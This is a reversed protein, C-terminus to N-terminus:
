LKTLELHNKVVCFYWKQLWITATSEISSFQSTQLELNFLKFLKFLSPIDVKERLNWTASPKKIVM